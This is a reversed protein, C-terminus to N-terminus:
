RGTQALFFGKPDAAGGHHLAPAYQWPTAKRVSLSVMNDIPELTLVHPGFSYEASLGTNRAEYAM